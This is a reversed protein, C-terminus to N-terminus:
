IKALGLQSKEHYNINKYNSICSKGHYTIDKFNKWKEYINKIIDIYDSTNFMHKLFIKKSCLGMENM